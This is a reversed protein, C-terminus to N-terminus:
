RLDIVVAVGYTFFADGAANTGLEPPVAQIRTEDQVLGTAELSRAIFDRELDIAPDIHHNPLLVPFKIEVRDDLSATAVWITTGDSLAFGSAWMRTHHRKSISGADVALEFAMDQPRGALFAPTVPATPDATHHIGASYLRLVSHINVPAAESWGAAAFAAEVQARSGVFVLTAPEMGRGTVTESRLPLRVITAPGVTAEALHTVPLPLLAPAHQPDRVSRVFTLTILGLALAIATWRWATASRHAERPRWEALGVWTATAVAVALGLVAGAVVDSTWHFGLVVRSYAVGVTLTAAVLAIAVQARLTRTARIGLYALYGFAAAAAAAHGSPFSYSGPLALAGVWPRPRRVIIRVLDSVAPGLILVAVLGIFPRLAPRRVWLIAFLLMCLPIRVGAGGLATFFTSARVPGGQHLADSLGAVRVDVQTIAGQRLVQVTLSGFALALLSTVILGVTLFLGGPTSTDLRRRLFRGMPALRAGIPALSPQAALGASIGTGLSRLIVGIEPAFTRALHVIWAVAMILGVVVVFGLGGVLGFLDFATYLGLLLPIGIAAALLLAVLTRGRHSSARAQM